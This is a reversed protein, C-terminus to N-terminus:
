ICFLTDWGVQLLFRIGAWPLVAHSPDYQVAIDGIEKFKVMWSIIKDAQYRLNIVRGRFAFEWQNRLCIERKMRVASLLEEIDLNSTTENTKLTNKDEEPLGALARDWLNGRESKQSATGTRPAPTAGVV